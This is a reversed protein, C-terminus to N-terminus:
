HNEIADDHDNCNNHYCHHHKVNHSDYDYNDRTMLCSQCLASVIVGGEEGDAELNERSNPDTTASVENMEDAVEPFEELGYLHLIDIVCHLASLQIQEIDIGSI